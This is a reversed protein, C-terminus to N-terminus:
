PRACGLDRRREVTAQVIRAVLVGLLVPGFGGPIPMLTGAVPAVQEVDVGGTVRMREGPATPPVPIANFDMVVAGPKVWDRQVVHPEEVTVLLLDAAACIEKQRPHGLPVVHGVSDSPLAAMLGNRMIRRGVPNKDVIRADVLLAVERGVTSFGSAALATLVAIPVVPPRVPPLTSMPSMRASHTVSLGEAEKAPDIAAVIRRFDVGDPVPMVAMVVDVDPDANWGEVLRLVGEEGEGPDVHESRVDFGVETFMDSHLRLNLATLPDAGVAVLAVRPVVGSSRMLERAQQLFQRQFAKGNFIM